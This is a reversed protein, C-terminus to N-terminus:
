TYKNPCYRAFHGSQSCKFCKNTVNNLREKIDDKQKQSLEISVYSAGRVNDVGYKDMMQLTIKDEDFDDSNPYIHEVNIPHYKKTWSSGLHNKHDSLRRSINNTKGVYYKGNTLELVYIVIQSSKVDSYKEKIIEIMKNLTLENFTAVGTYIERTIKKIRSEISVITRGHNEAIIHIEIDNKIENILKNSEDQAWKKGANNLLNITTDPLKTADPLIATVIAVPKKTNLYNCFYECADKYYVGFTETQGSQLVCEIKDWFFMGNQIHKTYLIENRMVQSVDMNEIKFLRHTTIGIYVTNALNFTGNSSYLIEIHEDPLLNIVQSIKHSEESDINNITYTAVNSANVNAKKFYNM